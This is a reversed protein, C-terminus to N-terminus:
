PKAELHVEITPLDNETNTDTDIAPDDESTPKAAPKAVMIHESLLQAYISKSATMDGDVQVKQRPFSTIKVRECAHHELTDPMAHYNRLFLHHLAGFANIWHKPKLICVNLLENDDPTAGMEIPLFAKAFQNRQVILVGDAQRIIPPKGDMSIWFLAQKKSIFVEIASIVYAFVGWTKKRDTSTKAMVEADVGIGAILTAYTNNVRMISIKEEHQGTAIELAKVPDLPINLSKALLNGTGTPIICLTVMSNYKAILTLAERVTGDGGAAVVHTYKGQELAAGFRRQIESVRHIEHILAADQSASFLDKIQESLKLVDTQSSDPNILFLFRRKAAQTKDKDAMLWTFSPRHNLFLYRFWDFLIVAAERLVFLVPTKYFPMEFWNARIFHYGSITAGLRDTLIGDGVIAIHEKTLGFAQEIRKFSIPLPKLANEIILIDIEAEHLQDIIRKCYNKKFNNTVLAIKVKAEILTKLQALVETTIVGAFEPVLTDDLDFVVGKIQNEQFYSVNLDALKLPAQAQLRM